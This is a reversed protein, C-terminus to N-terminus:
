QVKERSNGGEKERSRKGGRERQREDLAQCIGPASVWPYRETQNTGQAASYLYRVVICYKDPSRSLQMMVEMINNNNNPDGLENVCSVRSRKWLHWRNHKHYFEVTTTDFASSSFFLCSSIILLSSWLVSRSSSLFSFILGFSLV